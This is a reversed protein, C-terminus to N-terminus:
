VDPFPRPEVDIEAMRAAYTRYRRRAEGHSGAAALARVLALHAPENYHDRELIRLCYRSATVHEGIRTTHGALVTAVQVYTLRAEERLETAWDEYPDEELFDGAYATEAAGLLALADPQDHRWSHLGRQANALFSMVDVNAVGLDLHVTDGDTVLGHETAGRQSGLVTRATSLAVSLRNGVRDAPEKPWLLSILTERTVPWGRRTIRIKVLDRAKKSQWATVPVPVGHRLVRFGGLTQISLASPGPEGAGSITDRVMSLRSEGRRNGLERWIAAAQDM